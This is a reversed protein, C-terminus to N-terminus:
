KFLSVRPSATGGGAHNSGSVAHGSMFTALADEQGAGGMSSLIGGGGSTLLGGGGSSLLDGGFSPKRRNPSPAAAAAATAAAAPGGGGTTTGGVSLSALAARAFSSSSSCHLAAGHTPSSISSAGGLAGLAGPAGGGGPPSLLPGTSNHRHLARLAAPSTGGSFSGVAAPRRGSHPGTPSAANVELQLRDLSDQMGVSLQPPAHHHLDPRQWQPSSGGGVGPHGNESPQRRAGPWGRPGAGGSSFGGSSHGATGSSQRLHSPSGGAFSPMRPAIPPAPHHLDGSSDHGQLDGMQGVLEDLMSQSHDGVAFRSARRQLGRHRRYAQQAQEDPSAAAGGGLPTPPRHMGGLRDLALAVEQARQHQTSGRRALPSSAGGTSHSGTRLGSPMRSAPLSDGEDDSHDEHHDLDAFHSRAAGAFGSMSGASFSM